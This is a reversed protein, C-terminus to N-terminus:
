AIYTFADYPVVCFFVNLCSTVMNVKQSAGNLLGRDWLAKVGTPDEDVDDRLDPPLRM